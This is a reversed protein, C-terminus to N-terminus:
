LHHNLERQLVRARRDDSYGIPRGERGEVVTVTLIAGVTIAIPSINEDVM